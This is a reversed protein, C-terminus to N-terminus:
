RWMAKVKSTGCSQSCSVPEQVMENIQIATMRKGKEGAVEALQTKALKRLETDM